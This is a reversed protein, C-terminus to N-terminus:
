ITSCDGLPFQGGDNSTSIIWSISLPYKKLQLAYNGPHGSQAFKRGNPSQKSQCKEFYYKQIVNKAVKEV